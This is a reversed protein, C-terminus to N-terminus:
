GVICLVHSLALPPPSSASPAQQRYPPSPNFSRPHTPPFHRIQSSSASRTFAFNAHKSTPGRSLPTIADPIATAMSALRNMSPPAAPSSLQLSSLPLRLPTDLIEGIEGDEQCPQPPSYSQFHHPDSNIPLISGSHNDMGAYNTSDMM